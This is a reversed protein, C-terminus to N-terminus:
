ESRMREQYALGEEPYDKWLGFGARLASAREAAVSDSVAETRYPALSDQVARRVLEERPVGATASLVDLLRVDEESLDVVTRM